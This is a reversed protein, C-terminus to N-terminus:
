VRHMALLFSVRYMQVVYCLRLLQSFRALFRTLPVQSFLLGHVIFALERCIVCPPGM